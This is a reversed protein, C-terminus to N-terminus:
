VDSRARIVHEWDPKMLVLIFEQEPAYLDVMKLISPQHTWHWEHIEASLVYVMPYFHTNSERVDTEQFGLAIVGRGAEHYSGKAFQFFTAFSEHIWDREGIPPPHDGISSTRFGREPM